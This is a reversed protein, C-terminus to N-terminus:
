PRWRVMEDENAPRFSLTEDTLIRLRIEDLHFLKSHQVKLSALQSELEITLEQQRRYQDMRILYNNDAFAFFMLLFFLLVIKQIIVSTM